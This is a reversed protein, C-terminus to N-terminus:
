RVGIEALAPFLPKGTLIEQGYMGAVAMMALRGNNLEKNQMDVYSTGAFGSSKLALPDFGFDGPEHDDKVEGFGKLTPISYLVEPIACAITLVIWFTNMGVENYTSPLAVKYSEMSLEGGFFPHWLEGFLYGVSALMCVRGHKIEAERFYLLKGPGAKASFGLPDFFGMPETQGGKMDEAKKVIASSMATIQAKSQSDLRDFAKMVNANMSVDRGCRNAAQVGALALDKMAGGPLSALSPVMPNARLSTPLGVLNTAEDVSTSDFKLGFAVVGLIALCSGGLFGLAIGVKFTRTRTSHESDVKVYMADSSAM